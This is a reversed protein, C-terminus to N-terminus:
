IRHTYGPLTVDRGHLTFRLGPTDVIEGILTIRTGSEAECDAAGAWGQPLTVLLEYDEGGLGAFVSPAQNLLPAVELVAPHVPLADLTISVGV